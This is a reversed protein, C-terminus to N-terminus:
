KSINGHEENPWGLTSGMNTLSMTCGMDQCEGKRLSRSAGLVVYCTQGSDWSFQVLEQYPVCSRLRCILYGIITLLQQIAGCLKLLFLAPVHNYDLLYSPKQVLHCSSFMKHKCFFQSTVLISGTPLRWPFIHLGLSLTHRRFYWISQLVVYLGIPSAFNTADPTCCHRKHIACVDCRLERDVSVMLHM